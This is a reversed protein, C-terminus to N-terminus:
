KLAYPKSVSMGPSQDMGLSIFTTRHKVIIEGYEPLLQSPGIGFAFNFGLQKYNIMEPDTYNMKEYRFDETIAIDSKLVLVV